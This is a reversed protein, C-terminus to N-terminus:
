SWLHLRGSATASVILALTPHFANITPVATLREEDGRDLLLNGTTTSFLQIHRTGMSGVLALDGGSLPDLVTRFNSLWRGTHNNHKIRLAPPDRWASASDGAVSKAARGRAPKADHSASSRWIRLLDDNGTSVMRMGDASFFASTCGKGHEFTALPKVVKAQGGTAAQRTKTLMRADWIKATNDNSTTLVLPQSPHADVSCAKKEHADWCAPDPPAVYAQRQRLAARGASASAATFAASVADVAAEDSVSGPGGAGEVVFSSTLRRDGAASVVGDEEDDIGDAEDEEDDDDDEEEEEDYREDEDDDEEEEQEEEEHEGTRKHDEGNDDTAAARDRKKRTAPTSSRALSDGGMSAPEPVPVSAAAAATASAARPAPSAAPTPATAVAALSASAERLDAMLLEGSHSVAWVIRAGGGGGGGLTGSPAVVAYGLLDDWVLVEASRMAGADFVRVSSDYSSSVVLEPRDLPSFVSAVPRTHPALLTVAADDDDDTDYPRFAGVKGWKDGVWAVVVDSRSTFCCSYARDPTVKAVHSDQRISIDRYSAALSAVAPDQRRGGAKGGDEAEVVGAGGSKAKKGGGAKDDAVLVSCLDVM